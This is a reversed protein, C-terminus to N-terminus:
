PTLLYSRRVCATLSLISTKLLLFVCVFVSFRHSLQSAIVGLYSAVHRKKNFHHFTALKIAASVFFSGSLETPAKEIVCVAALLAFLVGGRRVCM